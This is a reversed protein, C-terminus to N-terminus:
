VPESGMATRSVRAPGPAAPSWSDALTTSGCWAPAVAAAAPGQGAKLRSAAGRGEAALWSRDGRLMPLTGCCECRAPTAQKDNQCEAAFHYRVGPLLLQQLASAGNNWVSLMNSAPDVVVKLTNTAKDRQKNDAANVLIEDFIKFLGPVYTINQNVIAKRGADWVWMAGTHKQISGVYSDPRLLIHELQTKKQYMQEVTKSAGGAGAKAAGATAGAGAGAHAMATIDGLVKKPKSAM